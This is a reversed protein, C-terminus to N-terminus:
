WSSSRPCLIFDLGQIILKMSFTAKGLKNEITLTYDGQDSKTVKSMTLSTLGSVTEDRFRKSDPLRGGKYKWEVTPEPSASFPIEIVASSQAKLVLKDGYDHKGFSPTVPASVFSDRKINM